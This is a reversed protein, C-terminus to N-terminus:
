EGEIRSVAGLSVGVAPLADYMGYICFRPEGELDVSDRVDESDERGGGESIGYSGASMLPLGLGPVGEEM